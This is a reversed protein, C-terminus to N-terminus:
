QLTNMAILVLRFAADLHFGALEGRVARVRARVEPPEAERRRELEALMAQSRDLAWVQAGDRALPLAIRGTACGLDLVPSGLQAAAARWFPIDRTYHAHELAFGCAEEHSFAPGPVDASPDSPGDVAGEGPAPKM